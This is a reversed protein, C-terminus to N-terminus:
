PKSVPTTLAKVVDWGLWLRRYIVRSSIGIVESWETVCKSVGNLMLKRIHRSNRAQQMRTAWRCNGPSYDGDNDIRDITLSESYGNAIAWKQFTAFDLFEDSIGIGRGGYNPYSSCNPNKCRKFIGKWIKYLRTTSSGHTIKAKSRGCGCSSRLGNALHNRVIELERGCECRCRYFFGTPRRLRESIVILRGIRTGIPIIPGVYM